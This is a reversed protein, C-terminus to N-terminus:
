NCSSPKVRVAALNEADGPSRIRGIV